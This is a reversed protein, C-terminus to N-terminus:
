LVKFELLHFPLAKLESFPEELTIFDGLFTFGSLWGEGRKISLILLECEFIKYMRIKM